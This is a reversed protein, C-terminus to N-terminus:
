LINCFFYHFSATFFCGYLFAVTTGCPIMTANRIKDINRTYFRLTGETKYLTVDLQAFTDDICQYAADLNIIRDKKIREENLEIVFFLMARDSRHLINNDM